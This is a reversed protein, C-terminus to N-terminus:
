RAIDRDSPLGGLPQVGAFGPQTRNEIGGAVADDRDILGAPDFLEIRAGFHKEAIPCFFDHALANLPQQDIGVIRIVFMSCLERGPTKRRGSARERPM